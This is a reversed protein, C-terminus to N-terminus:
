AAPLVLHLQHLAEAVQQILDGILREVVVPNQGQHTRVQFGDGTVDGALGYRRRDEPLQQAFHQVFFDHPQAVVL